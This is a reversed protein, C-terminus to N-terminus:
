GTGDTEEAAYGIPPLNEVARASTAALIHGYHRHIMEESTGLREAVLKTPEGNRLLETAHTHRFGYLSIMRVKLPERAPRGGKEPDRKQVRKNKNGKVFFRWREYLNAPNCYPNAGGHAPFIFRAAEESLAGQEVLSQVFTRQEDLAHMTENDLLIARGEGIKIDGVEWRRLSPDAELSDQDNEFVSTWIELRNETLDDWTRACLEGPRMGTRCGVVAVRTLEDGRPAVSIFHCLEAFSWALLRKTANETAREVKSQKLLRRLNVKEKTANHSEILEGAVAQNLATKLVGYINKAHKKSFGKEKRLASVFAQLVEAPLDSLLRSGLAPIIHNNIDQKYHAYTNPAVVGRCGPLFHNTLYAKLRLRPRRVLSGNRARSLMTVLRNAADHTTGEVIEAPRKGVRVMFKHRKVQVREGDEDEDYGPVQGKYAIQGGPSTGKKLVSRNLKWASEAKFKM